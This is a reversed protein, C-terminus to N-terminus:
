ETESVEEVVKSVKYNSSYSDDRVYNRNRNNNYNSAPRDNTREANNMAKIIFSPNPDVAEIKMTLYRIVNENVRLVRELEKLGDSSVEFNFMTYSARKHKNIPYALNRIGWLEKKLIKGSFKEIIEQIKVNISDIQNQPLDGRVMCVHEYISM